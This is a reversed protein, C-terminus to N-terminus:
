PARPEAHAEGRGLYASDAHARVELHVEDAILGASGRRSWRGRRAGDAFRVKEGVGSRADADGEGLDVGVEHREGDPLGPVQHSEGRGVQGGADLRLAQGSLEEAPVRLHAQAVDEVGLHEGDLRGGRRHARWLEVRLHRVELAPTCDIPDVAVTTLGAEMATVPLVRLIM